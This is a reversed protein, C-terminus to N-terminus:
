SDLKELLTGWRNHRESGQTRAAFLCPHDSRKVHSLGPKPNAYSVEAWAPQHVPVSVQPM